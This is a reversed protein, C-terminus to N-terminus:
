RYRITLTTQPLNLCVLLLDLLPRALASGSLKDITGILSERSFTLSFGRALPDIYEGDGPWGGTPRDLVKRYSM